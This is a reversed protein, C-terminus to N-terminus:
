EGVAAAVGADAAEDAEGFVAGPQAAAADSSEGTPLPLITGDGEGTLAPWLGPVLARWSDCESVTATALVEPPMFLAAPAPLAFAPAAAPM